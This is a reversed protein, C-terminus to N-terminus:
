STSCQKEIEFDVEFRQASGESPELTCELLVLAKGHALRCWKGDWVMQTARRLGLEHQWVDKTCIRVRSLPGFRDMVPCQFIMFEM